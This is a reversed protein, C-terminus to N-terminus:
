IDLLPMQFGEILTAIEQNKNITYESLHCHSLSKLKRQNLRTKIDVKARWESDSDISEM